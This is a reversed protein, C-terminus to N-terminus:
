GTWGGLRSGPARAGALTPRPRSTGVGINIAAVDVAGAGLLLRLGAMSTTDVQDDHTGNPFSAHEDIFDGTWGRARPLYFNGAEQFPAVSQARTLKSRGEIKFAVVGSVENQLSQILPKAWPTEEILIPFGYEDRADKVRQKLEPFTWYGKQVNRWYLDKGIRVVTAIVAPDGTTKDDYGATDVISYGMTPTGPLKDYDYWQWAGRAFINGQEASPRQQYLAGFFYSGIRQRIRALRSAPYREPWLAEGVQRGLTDNPEALAPLKLVYWFEDEADPDGDEEDQRELVHGTMDKEHWRTAMIIAIGGPEIRTYATSDWWDANREQITPSAAEEANKVADDSIFANAGRGTIPGGVGATHMGGDTGEIEWDNAAASQRKVGVGFMSQGHEELLDRARRGWLRAFNAEYSTLIVRQEPHMGLYWAPFYRSVLESKGHRPPMEVVLRTFDYMEDDPGDVEYGLKRIFWAPAKRASLFVLSQNLLDLHPTRHWRGNSVREAFDAPSAPYEPATM